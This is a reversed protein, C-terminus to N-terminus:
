PDIVYDCSKPSLKTIDKYTSVDYIVEKCHECIAATAQPREKLAILQMFGCSKHQDCYDVRKLKRKIEIDLGLKQRFGEASSPVDSAGVQKWLPVLWRRSCM